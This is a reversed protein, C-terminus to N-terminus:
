KYRGVLYDISTRYYKAIFILMDISPERKGKEYNSYTVQSINWTYGYQNYQNVNTQNIITGAQIPLANINITCPNWYNNTNTILQHNGNYTRSNTVFTNEAYPIIRGGGGVIYGDNDKLVTSSSVSTVPLSNVSYSYMYIDLPSTIVSSDSSGSVSNNSSYFEYGSAKWTLSFSAGERSYLYYTYVAGFGSRSVRVTSEKLDVDLNVGVTVLEYADSKTYHVRQKGVSSIKQTIKSEKGASMTPNALMYKAFDFAYGLWDDLPLFRTSQGIKTEDLSDLFDYTQIIPVKYSEESPLEEGNELMKQREALRQNIYSYYDDKDLIVNGEDDYGHIEYGYFTPTPEIPDAQDSACVSIPSLLLM